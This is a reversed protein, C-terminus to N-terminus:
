LSLFHFNIINYFLLVNNSSLNDSLESLYYPIFPHEESSYTKLVFPFIKDIM